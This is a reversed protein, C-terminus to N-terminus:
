KESKLRLITIKDHQGTYISDTTYIHKVDDCDLLLGEHITNECHTAYLYIDNAGANKLAKVSFYFTGGRSCIDDVILVNKGAVMEAGAISLRHIKGTGWDRQKIGFAHPRKIMSSYRKMAGEDPYFMLLKDDGIQRIVEWIINKPQIVHVNNILAQAVYSHPDLVAVKDIGLSNLWECFYKLTFVDDPEHVRDNRANPIYPMELVIYKCKHERLHRVLYQLIPMECDSEYNWRIVAKQQTPAVFVKIASTGDPFRAGTHIPSGNLYLAM